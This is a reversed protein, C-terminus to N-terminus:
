KTTGAQNDRDRDVDKEGDKADPKMEEANESVGQSPHEFQSVHLTENFYYARGTTRSILKVWGPPLNAEAAQSDSSKGSNSADLPHEFQAQNLRSNWYYTRGTSRSVMRHWGPPLTSDQPSNTTGETPSVTGKPEEFTTEGTAIFCYYISGTTRSRVRIWGPPLAPLNAFQAQDAAWDKTTLGGPRKGGGSTAQQKVGLDKFIHNPLVLKPVPSVKGSRTPLVRKPTFGGASNESDSSYDDDDLKSGAQTTSTENGLSNDDANGNKELLGDKKRIWSTHGSQVTADTEALLDSALCRCHCNPGNGM